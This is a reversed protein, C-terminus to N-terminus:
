VSCITPLTLHTYSVPKYDYINTILAYIQEAVYAGERATGETSNYFHIQFNETEFTRWEIEPHNYYNQAYTFHALSIFIIIRNLLIIM